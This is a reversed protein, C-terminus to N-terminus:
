YPSVQRILAAAGEHCSKDTQGFRSHQLGSDTEYRPFDFFVDMDDDAEEFGIADVDPLATAIGRLAVHALSPSSTPTSLGSSNASSLYDEVDIIFDPLQPLDVDMGESPSYDPSVSMEEDGQSPLPMFDDFEDFKAIYADEVHESSVLTPLSPSIPPKVDPIPIIEEHKLIRRATDKRKPARKKKGDNQKRQPKYKYEPHIRAHREKLYLSLNVFLQYLRGLHDGTGWYKRRHKVEQWSWGGLSSLYQGSLQFNKELQPLLNNTKYIYTFGSRAVIFCNPPRRVHLPNKNGSHGTEPFILDIIAEYDNNDEHEFLEKVHNQEIIEASRFPGHVAIVAATKAPIKFVLPPPSPTRLPPSLSERESKVADTSSRPNHAYLGLSVRPKASKGSRLAGSFKKPSVTSQARTTVMRFSFPTSQPSQIFLFWSHVLKSNGYKFAIEGTTQYLSFGYAARSFLTQNRAITNIKLPHVALDPSRLLADTGIQITERGRTSGASPGVVGPKLVAQWFPNALRASHVPYIRM